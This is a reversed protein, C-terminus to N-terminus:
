VRKTHCTILSKRQGCTKPYRRTKVVNKKEPQGCKPYRWLACIKLASITQGCIQGCTNKSCQNKSCQNEKVVPKRQGCMKQGCTKRGCM